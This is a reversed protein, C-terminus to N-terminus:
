WSIFKISCNNKEMRSEFVELDPVTSDQVAQGADCLDHVSLDDYRCQWSVGPWVALGEKWVTGMKDWNAELGM